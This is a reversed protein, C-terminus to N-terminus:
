DRFLLKNKHRLDIWDVALGNEFSPEFFSDLSEVDVQDRDIPPQASSEGEGSMTANKKNLYNIVILADSPTVRGDSSVDLRVNWNSARLNLHNIILLADVPTVSGDGNVDTNVYRSASRLSLAVLEKFGLLYLNDDALSMLFSNGHFTWLLERTQRSFVFVDGRQTQVIVADDTVNLQYLVNYGNHQPIMYLESATGTKLDFTRILDYDAVFVKEGAIVAQAFSYRVPITFRVSRTKLDLAIVQGDAGLIATDRSMAPVTYRDFQRYASIEKQWVEVGTKLDIERFVQRDWIFVRGDVVAPTWMVWNSFTSLYLRQGSTQSLALLGIFKIPVLVVGKSVVIEVRTTPDIIYPEPLQGYNFSWQLQGTNQDIALVHLEKEQVFTAYIHGEAATLGSFASKQDFVRQWNLEGSASDFALLVTSYIGNENPTSGLVFVQGNSAVAFQQYQIAQNRWRVVPIPLTGITGPVYGSRASDVGPMSWDGPISGDIPLEEDAISVVSVSSRFGTATAQIFGSSSINDFTDNVVTISFEASTKGAPITVVDPLRIRSRLDSIIAVVLDSKQANPISIKASYPQTANGERLLEPVNLVLAPHSKLAYARIGTIDALYLFNSTLYAKGGTPFWQKIQSSERNFVYTRNEFPFTRNESTVIIADDTIIPQNASLPKGAEFTRVRKGTAADFQIVMGLQITFLSDNDMAPQGSFTGNLRWLEQGTKIDYVRLGQNTNAAVRGNSVTLDGYDISEPLKKWRLSFDDLNYAAISIKNTVLLTNQYITSSRGLAVETDEVIGRARDVRYIGADTGVLLWNGAVSINSDSSTVLHESAWRIEGSEADLSYLIKSNSALDSRYYLEGDVNVGPRASENQWLTKGSHSDLGVRDTFLVDSSISLSSVGTTTSWEPQKPLYTGLQGPYYGSRNIGLNFEKWADSVNSAVASEDDKVNILLKSSVYTPASATIQMKADGNRNLNNIVNIPFTISTQGTPIVVSSPLKLLAPDSSSLQVQLNTPLAKGISVKAEVVGATEDMALPASLTVAQSDCLSFAIIKSDTRSSVLLTNNALSLEGGVPLTFLLKRTTRDFIYTKYGSSKLVADDTIIPQSNSSANSSFKTPEVYSSYIVSSRANSHLVESGVDIYIRGHAVAPGFNPAYHSKIGLVTRTSLDIAIISRDFNTKSLVYAIGDAVVVPTNTNANKALGNDIEISWLAEGTELSREAFFTGSSTFLRGNYFAPSWNGTDAIQVLFKVSGDNQNVGYLGGGYGAQVFVMGNAVVPPFPIPPQMGIQTAWNTEGTTANVSYLLAYDGHQGPFFLNGGDFTLAGGRVAFPENNGLERTWLDVGTQLDVARLKNGILAYMLGDHIVTRASGDRSWTAKGTFQTGISGPVYGTHAVGNGYTDWNSNITANCGALLNRPELSEFSLQKRSRTRIPGTKPTELNNRNLRRVSM